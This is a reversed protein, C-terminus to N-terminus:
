MLRSLEISRNFAKEIAEVMCQKFGKEKMVQLAAETTGGPSTVKKRLSEPSENQKKLLKVAGDITAIVLKNSVDDSFGLSKASEIMSEAFYFLYAPGSGSIATIVDIDKEQVELIQGM